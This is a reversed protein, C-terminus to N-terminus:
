NIAVTALEVFIYLHISYLKRQVTIFNVTAATTFVRKKKEIRPPSKPPSVCLKITCKPHRELVCVCVKKGKGVSM